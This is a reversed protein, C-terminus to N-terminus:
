MSLLSGLTRLISIEWAYVGEFSTSTLYFTKGLASQQELFLKNVATSIGKNQAINYYKGMDFYTLNNSKAVNIYNLPSKKNIYRGLSVGKGSPNKTSLKVLKSLDGRSAKNFASIWRIDAAITGTASYSVAMGIGAGILAGLLGAGLYWGWHLDFQKNDAYDVAATIGVGIAAGIIATLIFFPLHGSPDTFNVPDNGCYAYLNLGHATESDLYLLSDPSIWRCWEPNYYRTQVWYFGTEADFYYGRYRIKCWQALTTNGSVTCNGYADYTFGVVKTGASNYVGVVDGQIYKVM